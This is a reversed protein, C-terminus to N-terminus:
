PPPLLRLWDFNEKKGSRAESLYEQRQKARRERSLTTDNSTELNKVFSKMDPNKESVYMGGSLAMYGGGTAEALSKYRKLAQAHQQHDGLVIIHFEIDYGKALLTKMMPDMGKIGRYEGPSDTDFGDTIVILRLKGKEKGAPAPKYRRLVDEEIMKWMYTSGSSADWNLCTLATSWKDERPAIVSKGSGFKVIRTPSEQLLDAVSTLASKGLSLNGSMSGSDDLYLVTELNGAPILVPDAFEDMLTPIQQVAMSALKAAPHVKGALSVVPGIIKMASWAVSAAAAQISAATAGKAVISTTSKLEKPKMSGSRVIENWKSENMNLGYSLASKQAPELQDWESLPPGSDSSTWSKSNWGLQEWVMKENASLANWPKKVFKSYCNFMVRTRRTALAAAAISRRSFLMVARVSGFLGACHSMRRFDEAM